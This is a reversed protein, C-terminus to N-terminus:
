GINLKVGGMVGAVANYVLAVVLGGLAGPIANILSRWIVALFTAFTYASWNILNMDIWWSQAGFIWGLIWYALGFAFTWLATLVAGYLVFSGVNVSKITKM